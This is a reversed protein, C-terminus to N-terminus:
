RVGAERWGKRSEARWTVIKFEKEQTGEERM